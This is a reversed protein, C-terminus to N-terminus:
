ESINVSGETVPEANNAIFGVSKYTNLLVHPNKLRRMHVRSVKNRMEANCHDTSVEECGPLGIM